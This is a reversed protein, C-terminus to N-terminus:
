LCMLGYQSALRYFIESPTYEEHLPFPRTYVNSRTKYTSQSTLGDCKFLDKELKNSGVREIEEELFLLSVHFFQTPDILRAINLPVGIIGDSTVDPCKMSLAVAIFLENQSSLPHRYPFTRSLPFVFKFRLPTNHPISVGNVGYTISERSSVMLRSSLEEERILLGNPALILGDEMDRFGTIRIYITRICNDVPSRSYTALNHPDFACEEAIHKWGMTKPFLQLNESFPIGLAACDNRSLTFITGLEGEVQKLILSDVSVGNFEDIVGVLEYVKSNVGDDCLPSSIAYREGIVFSPKNSEKRYPFLTREDFFDLSMDSLSVIKQSSM